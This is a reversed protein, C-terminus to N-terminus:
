DVDSTMVGGGLRGFFVRGNIEVTTAGVRSRDVINMLWTGLLM